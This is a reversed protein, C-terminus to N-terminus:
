GEPEFSVEGAQCVLLGPEMSRDGGLDEGLELEAEGGLGVRDIVVVGDAVDRCRVEPGAGHRRRGRGGRALLDPGLARNVPM